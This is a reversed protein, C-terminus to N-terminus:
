FDIYDGPSYYYFMEGAFERACQIQDAMAIYVAIDAFWVRLQELFDSYPIENKPTYYDAAPDEIYKQYDIYDWYPPGALILDVNGSPVEEM